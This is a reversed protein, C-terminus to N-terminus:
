LFYLIFAKAIIKCKSLRKTWMSVGRLGSDHGCILVFVCVLFFFDDDDIDLLNSFPDKAEFYFNLGAPIIVLTKEKKLFPLM